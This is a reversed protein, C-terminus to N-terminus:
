DNKKILRQEFARDRWVSVKKGDHRVEAKVGKEILDSVIREAIADQKEASLTYSHWIEVLNKM